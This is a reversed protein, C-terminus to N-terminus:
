GMGSGCKGSAPHCPSTDEAARLCRVVAWAVPPEIGALKDALRDSVRVHRSQSICFRLAIRPDEYPLLDLNWCERSILDLEALTFSQRATDISARLPESMDTTAKFARPLRSPPM